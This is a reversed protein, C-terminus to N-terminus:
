YTRKDEIELFSPFLRLSQLISPDFMKPLVVKYATNYIEYQLVDPPVYHKATGSSKISLSIDM